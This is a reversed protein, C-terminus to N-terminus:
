VAGATMTKAIHTKMLEVAKYGATIDVGAAAYSDSRSQQNMVSMGKRELLLHLGQGPGPRHVGATGGPVPLGPLRLGAEDCIAKLM